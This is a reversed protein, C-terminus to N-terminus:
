SFSRFRSGFAALRQGIGLLSFCLNELTSSLMMSFKHWKLMLMTGQMQSQAKNRSPLVRLLSLQEKIVARGRISTKERQECLKRM